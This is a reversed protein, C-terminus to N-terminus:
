MNRIIYIKRSDRDFFFLAWEITKSLSLVTSFPEAWIGRLERSTSGPLEAAFTAFIMGPFPVITSSNPCLLEAAFRSM